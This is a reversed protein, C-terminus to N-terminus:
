RTDPLYAMRRRLADDEAKALEVAQELLSGGGLLANRERVLREAITECCDLQGLEFCFVQDGEKVGSFAREIGSLADEDRRGILAEMRLSVLQKPGQSASASRWHSSSPHGNSHVAHDKERCSVTVLSELTELQIAGVEATGIQEVFWGNDSAEVVGQEVFAATRRKVINVRATAGAQVRGACAVKGFVIFHLTPM